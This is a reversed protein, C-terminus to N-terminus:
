SVRQEPEVVVGVVVPPQAPAVRHGGQGHRVHARARGELQDRREGPPPAAPRTRLRAALVLVLLVGCLGLLAGTVLQLLQLADLPM